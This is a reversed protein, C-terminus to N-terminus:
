MQFTIYVLLNPNRWQIQFLTKRGRICECIEADTRNNQRQESGYVPNQVAIESQAGKRGLLGHIRFPDQVHPM